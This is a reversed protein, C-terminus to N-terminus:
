EVAMTVLNSKLSRGGPSRIELQVPVEDGPLLRSPLEAIVQFVGAEGAMPSVAVIGALHGGITLRLADAGMRMEGLGTVRIALLEGAQAPEGMGRWDRTKSVLGSGLSRIDGQVGAAARATLIRPDAEVVQAYVASTEGFPNGMVIELQTGPAAEPCVFTIRHRSAAVVPAPVGNIRIWTGGLSPVGARDELENDEALLWRGEASALGGPSCALRASDRIVPAPRSVSVPVSGEAVLQSQRFGQLRLEGEYNEAETSQWQFTGLVPDISAGAPAEKAVITLDDLKGGSAGIRFQLTEGSAVDIREPLDLAAPRELKVRLLASVRNSASDAVTVEYQGAPASEDVKGTFAIVPQRERGRVSAPLLIRASPSSVRFGASTAEANLGSLNLKCHFESGPELEAPYCSLEPASSRNTGEAQRASIQKIAEEVPETELSSIVTTTQTTPATNFIVDVWYNSSRWSSKPFGLSGYKYVGNGGAETNGLATLPGRSYGGSNFYGENISYKGNPARYSVVYTTNAQIAVPSSFYAQQWGSSTEGTFTLAALETGNLTWLRATHTGINKPGKYFRVGLVYGSVKSRFKLGLEVAQSENDTIVSPTATSPWVTCPCQTDSGSAALSISVSRSVGGNSATVQATTATAVSGAKAVFMASASGSTVTVSSPVSLSSSTSTLSVAVGSSPASATLTVTCTASAGSSLSTPSCTLSSLVPLAAGIAISATKSTGNYSATVTVNAATSVTGATATFPASTSGAAVTVSAPTALVTSNDTITVAAGGAPAASTLTVTCTASAGSAISSPSCSLSSVTPPAATISVATAKSSSNYSATLTVNTAASVTGATATFTASTTSAAVTVSAPITLAANDKALTVSAGGAPASASLNVTCTSVGGSTLSSPSCSLLSVTPLPVAISVTATKSSSNYSATLTVNTAASVTGATATFTASTANAAVTVSAPITLAANDKTLSVSAGGAPAAASLTITCTSNAGSTLSTPSCALSSITPLPTISVTATKSSSNYSATLTVNTPASVTGATAAFTASTANAAVTVSAPITLAANNKSLAVAAGGSPAAKSLTITCVSQAGSNLSSPSCGLSSVVVPAVLTVTSSRTAGGATASITAAQDASVSGAVASFSFTSQGQPVVIQGTVPLQPNDSALTVALGGTPAAASLGGSCSVTAGAAVSQPSCSLSSVTVPVIVPAAITGAAGTVSMVKADGCAASANTVNVSM